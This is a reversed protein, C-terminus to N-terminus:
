CSIFNKSYHITVQKEDLYLTRYYLNGCSLESVDEQAFALISCGFLLIIASFIKM